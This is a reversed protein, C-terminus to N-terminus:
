RIRITRYVTQTVFSISVGALSSKTKPPVIVVSSVGKCKIVGAKRKRKCVLVPMSDVIFAEGHHSLELLTNLCLEFTDLHKHLQRNYRSISLRRKEPIYGEDITVYVTVIFNVDM